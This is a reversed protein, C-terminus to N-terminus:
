VKLKQRIVSYTLSDDEEAMKFIHQVDLIRSRAVIRSRLNNYGRMVFDGVNFEDKAQDIEAKVVQYTDNIIALFMNLLVFFM